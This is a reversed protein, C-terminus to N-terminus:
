EIEKLIAKIEKYLFPGTEPGFSNEEGYPGNSDEYTYPPEEDWQSKPIIYGIEDNALGIMYKYKTPMFTRLGPTEIPEIDFDGGEPAEVGGNLIEPYLEGPVLIFSLPGIKIAAIETRVKIFSSMGRDLLGLIAATAFMGNDWELEISKARISIGANTIITDPKELAQLSIQALRKGQMDVKEFSPTVYISDSFPDKVPWGGRTTMLGGIAGNFYVSHGGVGEHILSDDVYIGKELYERFYHPFDSSIELNDAWLTEPHNAWFSLVGLNKDTEADVVKILRIGADKVHPDRTDENLTDASQLNEAIHLTAPRLTAVAEKIAVVAQKKVYAMNEANIGTETMSPGWIGMLDNSQHTHTSAVMTYDINLEEPLMERIDIVDDNMFGIADLAVLAIRTDGDDIVTARAWVNDHVANAARLNSFGAIWFADFKGNGNNDNYTDGDEEKFKADNNIDNWTDIVEPTIPKVGFGIKLTKNETKAKISIDVNYGSHRDRLKYLSYSVLIVTLTLIFILVYTIIKKIM